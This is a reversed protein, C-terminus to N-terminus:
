VQSREGSHGDFANGIDNKPVFALALLMRAQLAFNANDEALLVMVQSLLNTAIHFTGDIYWKKSREPLDLNANRGFLLINDTPRETEEWIFPELFRPQYEYLPYDQPIRLDQLTAPM